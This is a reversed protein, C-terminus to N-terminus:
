PLKIVQGVSLTTNPGLTPNAQYIRQLYDSAAIEQPRQRNAIITLTDGATVTYTRAPPAAPPTPPVAAPEAGPQSGGPQPSPPPTSSPPTTRDTSGAVTTNAPLVSLSSAGPAHAEGGASRLVGVAFAATVSLAVLSGRYARLSPLATFPDLCRECLVDGHDDCYLTGCRDCELVAPQHCRFCQM